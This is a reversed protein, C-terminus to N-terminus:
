RCMRRKDNGMDFAVIFFKAKFSFNKKIEEPHVNKIEPTAFCNEFETGKPILHHVTYADFSDSEAGTKNVAGLTFGYQILDYNSDNQIKFKLPRSETKCSEPDLYATTKLSAMQYYCSDWIYILAILALALICIVVIAAKKNM